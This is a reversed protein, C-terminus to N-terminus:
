DEDQWKLNRSLFHFMSHCISSLWEGKCNSIWAICSSCFTIQDSAFEQPLDFFCTRESFPRCQFQMQQPHHACLRPRPHPIQKNWGHHCFFQWSSLPSTGGMIPQVDSHWRNATERSITWESERFIRWAEHRSKGWYSHRERDDLQVSEKISLGGRKQKGAEHEINNGRWLGVQRLNKFNPSRLWIDKFWDHWEAQTASFLKWAPWNRLDAEPACRYPLWCKWLCIDPCIWWFDNWEAQNQQRFIFCFCIISSHECHKVPNFSHTKIPTWKDVIQGCFEQHTPIIPGCNGSFALCIHSLSSLIQPFKVSSISHQNMLVFLYILHKTIQSKTKHTQFKAIIMNESQEFTFITSTENVFVVNFSLM